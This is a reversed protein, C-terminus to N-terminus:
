KNSENTVSLRPREDKNRKGYYAGISIEEKNLLEFLDNKNSLGREIAYHASAHLALYEHFISAFGPVKTTDNYVFYNPGRKFYVKLGNTSNYNPTPFLFVADARKDYKTSAGSNGSNNELFTVANDDDQDFPSILNWTGGSSKVLVKEIELHELAFIYDQQASVINATAINYDTNNSDDWQWRGDASMALFNFRDQARNIRETFQYLRNTNGSIQGYGADGFIKIECNQILGLKTTTDNFVM